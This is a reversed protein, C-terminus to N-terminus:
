VGSWMLWELFSAMPLYQCGEGRAPAVQATGLPHTPSGTARKSLLEGKLWLPFVGLGM